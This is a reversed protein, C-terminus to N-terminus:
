YSGKIGNGVWIFGICGFGGGWLLLYNIIVGLVFFGLIKVNDFEVRGVLRIFFVYSYFGVYVSIDWTRWCRLRYGFLFWFYELDGRVSVNIWENLM